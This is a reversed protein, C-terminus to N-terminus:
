AAPSKTSSKRRSSATPPQPNSLRSRASSGVARCCRPWAANWNWWTWRSSMPRGRRQGARRHLAGRRLRRGNGRRRDRGAHLAATPRLAALAPTIEPIGRSQGPREMRFYHIMSAAPVRDYDLSFGGRHQRGSPEEPRPVRGSQRLRRLRDRGRCQRGLITADVGADDGPRGRHAAPGAEGPSDVKRTPWWCRLPRATRPGRWGCPASSRPWASQSRGLALVGARDARNAEADDTLM